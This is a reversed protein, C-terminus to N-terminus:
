TGKASLVFGDGNEIAKGGIWWMGCSAEMWTVWLEHLTDGICSVNSAIMQELFIRSAIVDM